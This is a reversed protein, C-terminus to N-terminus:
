PHSNSCGNLLMRENEKKILDSYRMNELQQSECEKLKIYLQTIIGKLIINETEPDNQFLDISTKEQSNM